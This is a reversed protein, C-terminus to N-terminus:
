PRRAIASLAPEEPEATVRIDIIKPWRKKVFAMHDASLTLDRRFAFDPFWQPLPAFDGITIKQEVLGRDNLNQRDYLLAWLAVNQLWVTLNANVSWCAIRVQTQLWTGEREYFALTNVEDGFEAGLTQKTEQSNGISVFLGPLDIVARPYGLRVAVETASFYDRIEQQEDAPRDEFMELVPTPDERLKDLAVV